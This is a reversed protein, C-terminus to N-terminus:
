NPLCHHRPLGATQRLGECADGLVGDWAKWYKALDPQWKAFDSCVPKDKPLRSELADIGNRADDMYATLVPTALAVKKIGNLGTKVADVGNILSGTAIANMLKFVARRGRHVTPQEVLTGLAIVPYLRKSVRDGIPTLSVECTPESRFLNSAGRMNAAAIEVMQLIDAAQEASEEDMLKVSVGDGMKGTVNMHGWRAMLAVVMHGRLLKLEQDTAKGLGCDLLPDVDGLSSITDFRAMAIGTTRCSSIAAPDTTTTPAPSQTLTCASNALATAVTAVLLFPSRM